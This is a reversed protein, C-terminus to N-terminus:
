KSSTTREPHVNPLAFSALVDMFGVGNGSDDSEEFSYRLSGEPCTLCGYDLVLELRADERVPDWRLNGLDEDTIDVWLGATSTNGLTALTDVRTDLIGDATKLEIELEVRVYDSCYLRENRQVDFPELDLDWVVDPEAIAITIETHGPPPFGRVYRESELWQLSGSRVGGVTTRLEALTGVHLPAHPDTVATRSVEKCGGAECAALGAPALLALLALLKLSKTM